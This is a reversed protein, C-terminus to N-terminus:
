IILFDSGFGDSFRKLKTGTIKLILKAADLADPLFSKGRRSPAFFLIVVRRLHMIVTLLHM